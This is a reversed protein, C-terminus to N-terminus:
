VCKKIYVYIIFICQVCVCVCVTHLCVKIKFRNIVILQIATRIFLPTSSYDCYVEIHDSSTEQTVERIITYM